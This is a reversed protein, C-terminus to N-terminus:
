IDYEGFDCPVLLVVLEAKCVIQNRVRGLAKVQLSQSSLARIEASIELRQCPLVANHFTCSRVAGLVATLLQGSSSVQDFWLAAGVGALQAIAEIQCVGPVVPKDPFHALVIPHDNAWSAYGLLKHKGM